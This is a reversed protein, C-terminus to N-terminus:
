NLYSDLLKSFIAKERRIVMEYAIFALAIVIVGFIILISVYLRDLISYVRGVYALVVCLMFILFGKNLVSLMQEREIRSKEILIHTLQREIDSLKRNPVKRIKAVIDGPDDNM